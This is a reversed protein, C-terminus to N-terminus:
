ECDSKNQTRKGNKDNEECNDCAWQMNDKGFMVECQKKKKENCTKDDASSRKRNIVTIIEVCQLQYIERRHAPIRYNDFVVKIANYDYGEERM